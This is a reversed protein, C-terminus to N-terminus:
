NFCNLCGCGFTGSPSQGCANFPPTTCVYPALCNCTRDRECGSPVEVCRTDLAPPYFNQACVDTDVNCVSCDPVTRCSSVKVCYGAWCDGTVVPLEGKPCTPPLSRCTVVRSDCSPRGADITGNTDGGVTADGLGGETGSDPPSPMAIGGCAAAWSLSVGIGIAIRINSSRQRMPKTVHM